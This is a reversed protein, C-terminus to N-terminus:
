KGYKALISYNSGPKVTNFAYDSGRVKKVNLPVAKGDIAIESIETGNSRFPILFTLGNNNDVSSILNFKLENGSWEFASFIAEDKMKIFNALQALTWVPINKSNAYALMKLLPVRSFYYEDNHSKISIYSFVQDYISRDVLGKFCNFFGDPDHNETYEQDYVNNLHQYIGLIKGKSTAFKMPLGSGTFNGQTTGMSGLFHGQGSNNDYHAYNAEMLLNHGAEIEAQAAFEPRGEPDTGCWVFWHNVVTTMPLGYLESITKIKDALVIEMNNWVPTAAEKTDDPHGSIEFGRATWKDSWQKTVKGTELVYLSMKAGMSDVERFQTEFDTEGRFEGDNTLTVLCKLTDPFYWLRPLPKKDANMYEICRSLLRMQEDAQNIINNSTDIWGDTFLDMARLGPISDKELGAFLPNGQRTYVINQPLNYLFAATKGKGFSNTVVGPFKKDNVSRETLFAIERAGKLECLRADTHLQLTRGSLSRGESGATDITIYGGSISGGTGTFGFLEEPSEVPRVAILNGGKKVFESLLQWDNGDTVDEALIILDYQALFAKSIKRSDLSDIDFENFGEAKLIEATYTGFSSGTALLLIPNGPNQTSCGTLALFSIIALLTITGRNM